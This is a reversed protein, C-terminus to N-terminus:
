NRARVPDESYSSARSSRLKEKLYWVYTATALVELASSWSLKSSEIRTRFIYIKFFLAFITSSHASVGALPKLDSYRPYVHFNTIRGLFNKRYSQQIQGYVSCKPVLSIRTM